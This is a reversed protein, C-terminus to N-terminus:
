LTEVKVAPTFVLAVESLRVCSDVAEIILRNILNWKNVLTCLPFGHHPCNQPTLACVLELLSGLKRYYLYQLRLPVFGGRQYCVVFVQNCYQLVSKM